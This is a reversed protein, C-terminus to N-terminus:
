ASTAWAHSSAMRVIASSPRSCTTSASRASAIVSARRRTGVVPQDLMALRRSGNRRPVAVAWVYRATTPGRGRGDSGLRSGRCCRVRRSPCSSARKPSARLRVPRRSGSAVTLDDSDTRQVGVQFECRVLETIAGCVYPDDSDVENRAHEEEVGGVGLKRFESDLNALEALHLRALHGVPRRLAGDGVFTRERRDFLDPERSWGVPFPKVKSEREVVAAQIEFPWHPKLDRAATPVPIRRFLRCFTPRLELAVPWLKM